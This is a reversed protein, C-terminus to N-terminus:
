MVGINQGDMGGLDSRNKNINRALAWNELAMVRRDNSIEVRQAILIIGCWLQISPGHVNGIADDLM